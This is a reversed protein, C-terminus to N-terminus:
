SHSWGKWFRRAAVIRYQAAQAKELLAEVYTEQRGSLHAAAFAPNGDPSPEPAHRALDIALEHGTEIDNLDGLHEQLASLGELFEAHREKCKNGEVCGAFFEAAYRLKKAKIRVKHREPPELSALKRGKKKVANRAKEVVLAAFRQVPAERLAVQKADTKTTWPGTELWEILNIMLARFAPAELLDIVADYAAERRQKIESLFAAVGPEDPDQEAEPQAGRELYVDINRADGLARSMERLRSTLNAYTEDGALPEFISMASRLRRMGVRAQHLPEARRDVILPENMRFHRLCAYIIARFAEATPTGPHLEVAEAKFASPERASVLAYGQDSKAMVSLRLNASGDLRRLLDFLDRPHGGKLELELEALRKSGAETKVNGVDLAIEIDSDGQTVRWTTRKIATEFLPALQKRKKPPLAQVPTDAAAELDPEDTALDTEWESRQFLGASAGSRSKITQVIRPGIRRLRLSLGHKRLAHDPTDYYTSVLQKAPKVAGFTNALTQAVKGADGPPVELKLEIERPENM